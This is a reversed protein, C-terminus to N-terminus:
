IFLEYHFQKHTFGIAIWRESIDGRLGGLQIIRMAEIMAVSRSEQPIDAAQVMAYVWTCLTRENGRQNSKATNLWIQQNEKM